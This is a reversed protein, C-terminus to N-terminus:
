RRGYRYRSLGRDEAKNLVVGLLPIRGEFLRECARVDAPSTQTGDVVLLVADVQDAISIVDDSGLAPPTDFIVIDPELHYQLAELAERTAPAQLLSAPVDVAEGNLVLALNQGFRRFHSELPQDGSLYECLPASSTQGFLKGLQPDRLEFDVLVTRCSPLRALALALNAAIFSKGCGHTPSTVAIRSWKKAALAQLIRTRLLDFTETSADAGATPFLGNGALENGNPTLPTISEWVRAPSLRSLSQATAFIERGTRQDLAVGRDPLVQGPRFVSVAQTKRGRTPAPENKDSMLSFGEHPLEVPQAGLMNHRIMRAVPRQDHYGATGTATPLDRM